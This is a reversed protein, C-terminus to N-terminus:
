NYIFYESYPSLFFSYPNYRIEHLCSPLPIYCSTDSIISLTKPPSKICLSNTDTRDWKREKTHTHAPLARCYRQAPSLNSQATTRIGSAITAWNEHQSFLLEASVDLQSTKSMRATVHNVHTVVYPQNREIRKTKPATQNGRSFNLGPWM